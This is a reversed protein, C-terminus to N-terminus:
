AAVQDIRDRYWYLTGLILLAMFTLM